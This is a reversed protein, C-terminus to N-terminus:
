ADQGAIEEEELSNLVAASKPIEVGAPLEYLVQSLVHYVCCRAKLVAFM